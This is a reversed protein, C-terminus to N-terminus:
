YKKFPNKPFPGRYALPSGTMEKKCKPCKPPSSILGHSIEEYEDYNVFLEEGCKECKWKYNPPPFM